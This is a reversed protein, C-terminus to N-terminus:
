IEGGLPNVPRGMITMTRADINLHGRAHITMVGNTMSIVNNHPDHIILCGHSGANDPSDIMRMTFGDRTRIIKEGPHKSPPMQVPNWPYGIIFAHDFDGQNCIVLVEDGNEPMFFFGRDNGAALSAVSCWRRPSNEGESPFYVEIKGEGNVDFNNTVQGIIVGSLPTRM